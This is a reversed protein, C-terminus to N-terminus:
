RWSFNLEFKFNFTKQNKELTKLRQLLSPVDKIRMFNFGLSAKETTPIIEFFQM